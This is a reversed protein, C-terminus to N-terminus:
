NKKESNFGVNRFIIYIIITLLIDILVKSLLLNVNLLNYLIYIFFGAIFYKLVKKLIYVLNNGINNHIYINKYNMLVNFIINIIGSISNTLILAKLDDNSNLLYFICLFTILSIIYPIFLRLYYNIFEKYILISDNIPNFRSEKNNDIYITKIPVEIIPINEECCTMLCKLEYNYREGPINLLKKAVEPTVARLGTQTDSITKNFLWKFINRTLTNGFKSKFPVNDLSFDRVGIVLSNPNEISKQCCKIMDEVDHQNDCDIVVYSVIGKYNDLAYSYATKIAKGKGMNYEHRLVHCKRELKKFYKDYSEDSGDNIVLINKFAGDLKELLADFLKIPPNYAPIIILIESNMIVVM